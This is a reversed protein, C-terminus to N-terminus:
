KSILNAAARKTKTEPKWKKKKLYWKKFDQFYQDQQSESGSVEWIEKGIGQWKLLTELAHAALVYSHSSKFTDVIQQLVLLVFKNKRM